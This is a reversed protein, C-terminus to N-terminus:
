LQMAGEMRDLIELRITYYIEGVINEAEQTWCTGEARDIYNEYDKHAYLLNDILEEDSWKKVDVSVRSRERMWYDEIM